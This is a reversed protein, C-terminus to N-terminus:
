TTASVAPTAWARASRNSPAVISRASGFIAVPVPALGAGYDLSGAPGGQDNFLFYDLVLFDRAGRVLELTADAVMAGNTHM